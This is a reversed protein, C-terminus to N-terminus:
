PVKNSDIERKIISEGIFGLFMNPFLTLIDIKM